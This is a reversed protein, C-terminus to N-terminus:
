TIPLKIIFLSGENADSELEITGGHLSLFEKVISLGLGTGQINKVNTARYFTTFLGKQDKKPIGIGYDKIRIEVENLKEFKITLEPDPMGESYKLANTVLNTIVQEILQADVNALQNVGITEFKVKRRDARGHTIKQLTSEILLELDVPYKSIEIKGADLRGLMLIDNMLNTVRSIESSIRGLYKGYKEEAKPDEAELMYSILDVNQKITTLPTRFEHSTMSVFRSKLENVEREKNLAKKTEEQSEKQLTIDRSFATFSKVGQSVIPIIALEIPFERGNKHMATIEIRQNLVPGKGTAMYRDMGQSHSQRHQNPIINETLSKGLVEEKTWGFTEEARPNWETIKGRDNISIIADMASNVVARLKNESERLENEAKEQRRKAKANKIRTAALNAITSLTELHKQTFFNAEEHESDIIGLVKGEYIIPVSIESLRVQDDAIYRPDKRTDKVIEAKGSKAVHGVIGKGFPISIPNLIERGKTKNEGYAALQELVQKDENLVYIVCDSFGFKEIVNEAIEWAISYIDEQDLLTTVFSNISTLFQKQQALELNKAKLTEQEKKLEERNNQNSIIYGVFRSFLRFFELENQTFEHSRVKENGLAIVGIPKNDVTFPIFLCSSLGFSEMLENEAFESESVDPIAILRNEKYSIGSPTGEIPISFEKGEPMPTDMVTHLYVLNEEKALLIGGKSFELFDMIVELGSQLQASISLEYNSAIENLRLLGSNFTEITKQLRQTSLLYTVFRAFLRFFEFDYSSFGEPKPNFDGLILSGFKKGDLAIPMSLLSKISMEQVTTYHSYPSNAVDPIAILRQELFSIGPISGHLPLYEMYDKPILHPNVNKIVRLRDGEAEVVGGISLKFYKSVMQLGKELQEDLTLNTDSTIRNLEELGHTYRDLNEGFKKLELENKKRQTIDVHVGISGIREGLSNYSPAGSILCYFSSGDKRLIEAEYVSSQNKERLKHEKEIKKRVEESTLVSSAKKGILEDQTYGTIKCMAENIFTIKEELDVEILGFQLNQIISQYKEESKRKLLDAEYRETIVRAVAMAGTIEGGKRLLQVNQGIWIKEGKETIAPFELYTSQKKQDFQERYFDRVKDRSEEPILELYKKELLSKKSYGFIESAKANVFTFYGKLDTEYIIDGAEEVLLRYREISFSPFSSEEKM